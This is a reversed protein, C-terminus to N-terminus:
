PAISNKIQKKIDEYTGKKIEDHLPVPFTKGNPGKMTVHSGKQRVEEFGVKKLKKILNKGSITKPLGLEQMVADIVVQKGYQKVAEVVLKRLILGVIIPVAKAEYEAEEILTLGSDQEVFDARDDFYGDNVVVSSASVNANGNFLTCLFLSLIMVLSVFKKLTNM